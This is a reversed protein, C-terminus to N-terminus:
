ALVGLDDGSRLAAPDVAFLDHELRQQVDTPGPRLQDESVKGKLRGGQEPSGLRRVGSGRSPSGGLASGGSPSGGLPSSRAGAGTPLGAGGGRLARRARGWRSPRASSACCVSEAWGSGAKTNGWPDTAVGNFEVEFTVPKTVGKITLDGTLDEGDFSTAVFTMTPHNDVDFFDASKLHGDRDANRTDVSAMAVTVNVTSATVDSAVEVTGTVDAFRGRVKSVMLHRAVFGVETHSADVTWTGAPLNKISSM